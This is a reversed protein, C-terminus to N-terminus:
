SASPPAYLEVFSCRSCRYAKTAVLAKTKVKLGLWRSVVPAGEQWSSVSYAGYGTDVLAGEVMSGQCKPCNSAPRM